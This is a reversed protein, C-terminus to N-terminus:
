PFICEILPRAHLTYMNMLFEADRSLTCALLNTTINNAMAVKKSIHSHFKLSRDVTIGLDSHSSVFNMPVGGIHYPSVGSFIIDSSNSCFRMIVCKDSNMELGWSLSSNTLSNICQQFNSTSTVDFRNFGLYLKTDDAFIKFYCMVDSVVYNIYILFLLPGLVSGQPVGSSVYVSESVESNIKVKMRRQCLFVEMWGLLCGQIGISHLKNLLTQHCVSDFAKSYDMFVLDVVQGQDIMGTIDNYTSILQDVTSFNARFGYQQPTLINNLQLYDTLHNVIIKELLKCTVSTLSIPRYNLPNYRHSKKYIPVVTSNLWQVPLIGFQLSSNFILCLPISLVHKLSELLRPHIGDDGMASNLNISGIINEIIVPTIQLQEVRSNCIQHLFPHALIETRFVSAFSHVFCNAMSLSDDTIDGNPLKIPGISPRCMKRHRIYSHFLKPQSSIQNGLRREYDIQSRIAFNLVKENVNKYQQWAVLTDAHQRGLLSRTNKFHQWMYARERKLARPPNTNWPPKSSM